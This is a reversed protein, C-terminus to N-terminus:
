SSESSPADDPLQSIDISRIGREFWDDFRVAWVDFRMPVNTKCMSCEFTQSQRIKFEVNVPGIEPNQFRRQAGKNRLELWGGSQWEAKGLNEARHTDQGTCIIKM